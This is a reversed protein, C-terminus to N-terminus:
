VGGDSEKRNISMQVNEVQMPHQPGNWCLAVHRNTVLYDFAQDKRLRADPYGVFFGTGRVDYEQGGDSCKLQLFVVTKRIQSIPPETPIANPPSPPAAPQTPTQAACFTALTALGCLLIKPFTM